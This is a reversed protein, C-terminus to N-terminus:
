IQYIVKANEVNGYRHRKINWATLLFKSLMATLFDKILNIDVAKDLMCSNMDDISRLDLTTYIHRHEKIDKVTMMLIARQKTQVDKRHFPINKEIRQRKHPLGIASTV